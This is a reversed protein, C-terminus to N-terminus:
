IDVDKAKEVNSLAYDTEDDSSDFSTRKQSARYGDRYHHEDDLKEEFKSIGKVFSKEETKMLIPRPSQVVETHKKNDKDLCDNLSGDISSEDLKEESTAQCKGRHKLRCWAREWSYPDVSTQVPCHRTQTQLKPLRHTSTTATVTISAIPFGQATHSSTALPPPSLHPQHNSRSSHVQQRCDTDTHVTQQVTPRSLALTAHGNSHILQASALSANQPLSIPTPASIDNKNIGRKKDSSASRIRSRSLPNPLSCCFLSARESKKLATTTAAVKTPANSVSAANSHWSNRNTFATWLNRTTETQKEQQAEVERKTTVTSPYLISQPLYPAATSMRFSDRRLHFSAETMKEEDDQHEPQDVEPPSGYMDQILSADTGLPALEPIPALSSSTCGSDRLTGASTASDFDKWDEPIEPTDEENVPNSALPKPLLYWPKSPDDNFTASSATSWRRFAELGQIEEEPSTKPREEPEFVPAQSFQSQSMASLPRFPYPTVTCGM